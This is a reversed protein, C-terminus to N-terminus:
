MSAGSARVVPAWRTQEGQVWAALEPQPINDAQVFAISEMRDRIAQEALIERLAAGLREADGQGEIEPVAAACVRDAAAEPEGEGHRVAVMPTGERLGDGLPLPELLPESEVDGRAVPECLPVGRGVAEGGGEGVLLPQGDSDVRSVTLPLGEEDGGADGVRLALPAPEGEHVTVPVGEAGSPVAESAPLPEGPPVGEGVPPEGVGEGLGGPALLQPLAGAILRYADLGDAGGDLASAPEFRAVEAM